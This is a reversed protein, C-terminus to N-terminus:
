LGVQTDTPMDVATNSQSDNDDTTNVDHTLLKKYLNDIAIAGLPATILIALVAATLILQGSSLGMSLPIAGIAAQVTAKPCYAIATFLREKRNLHSGVLCLWVGGMRVLLALAICPLLMLGNISFAFSVDVEAGVLVFLVIEAFLWLKNYKESLRAACETHKHFIVANFAIISLLGSFPLYAETVNEVFLLLCSLSLMTMVKISDRMHVKKVFRVFAIGLLIGTVTGTVISVPIRWLINLDLTGSDTMTCLATFLVIVVVDDASAGAMIMDPIGKATGYNHQKLKLMRPVIVAPSVASMVCGLIAASLVDINLLFYGLVIYAAIETLAPLFCMLIASRGNKRLLSLDLNLGARTLIIVLALQRLDASVSMISPSILNLVYPGFVIGVILMSVIPPLRLKSLISGLLLSSLTIVAFSTLFDLM